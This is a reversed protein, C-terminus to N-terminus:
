QFFSRELMFNPIYNMMAGGDFLVIFRFFGFGCWFVVAASALQSYRRNEVMCFYSILFGYSITFYDKVRTLIEYNRFLTFIPLLCLFLKIMIDSNPCKEKIEDYFRILFFMLLLYEATHLWNIASASEGNILARAKNFTEDTAFINMSLIPNFYKLVPVNAASLALTPLFIINLGIIKNKTLRIRNIFYVAFLILAATHFSYSILCFLFYRKWNREEINKIMLFFLAMTIPQRLSIFVNYFYFKYLLVLIVISYNNTYKRTGFYVAFMIFMSQLFIFGYFSLNLTKFFSNAFLYGREVGFTVYLDDLKAYQGFFDKLKPASDYIKRYINFDTGGVNRVGAILALLFIIAINIRRQTRNSQVNVISYQTQSYSDLILGCVCVVFVFIWVTM